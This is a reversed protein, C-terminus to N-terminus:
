IPNEDYVNSNREWKSDFEQIDDKRLVITFLDAYNEVSDNAGTVRFYEFILYAIQRGRLFRYEKQAKQEELSIRRKFHSNHIIRNLASAIKADLVEFNPMHIGKVSCSSKLDDVSDVLEVEKICLLAETPFQSCPCVETKFRIKWCAFTAPTPFKDFHLDSIQLRQQDAGYNKSFDGESPIVSNRASPGSQCRQDQVPTQSESMVHPSTHIQESINSSWPNLDQPYPASSSATPNAFVNGSFGHTDWISPPGNKRSPMGLPRSLMGGPVPHPPFFVPRSAVHSHGSRVSEADQFDRSDNMCNIENQLEQIKGTLRDEVLKREAITDFTSGQFRKLEEMESLSKEHAERLDWDQKLLQEHLLQQDRRLREDGQHARCIEEKQSEIM